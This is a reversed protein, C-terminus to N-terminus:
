NQRQNTKQSALKIKAKGPRIRNYEDPLRRYLSRTDLPWPKDSDAFTSQAAELYAPDTMCAAIQLALESATYGGRSKLDPIYTYFVKPIDIDILKLMEQWKDPYKELLTKVDDDLFALYRVYHEVFTKSQADDWSFDRLRKVFIGKEYRALDYAIRIKKAAEKSLEEGDLEEEEIAKLFGDYIDRSKYEQDGNYYKCLNSITFGEGRSGLTEAARVFGKWRDWLKRNHLPLGMWPRNFYIDRAKIMPKLDLLTMDVRPDLGCLKLDYDFGYNLIEIYVPIDRMSPIHCIRERLIPVLLKPNEGIVLRHYPYSDLDEFEGEEIGFWEIAYGPYDDEWSDYYTVVHRVNERLEERVKMLLIQTADYHTKDTRGRKWPLTREFDMDCSWCEDRQTVENRRLYEKDREPDQCPVGFIARRYGPIFGKGAQNM